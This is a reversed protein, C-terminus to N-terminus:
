QTAIYDYEATAILLDALASVLRTKAQIYSFQADLLDLNTAAGLIEREKVIKMNEDAFALESRAAKVRQAASRKNLQASYARTLFSRRYEDRQLRSAQVKRQSGMIGFAGGLSQFIPIELSLTATWSEDGDLELTDNSEWNYNFVFNLSPLVNSISGLRESKSLGVTDDMEKISPHASYQSFDPFETLTKLPKGMGPEADLNTPPFDWTQTLEAGIVMNMSLRALRMTNSAEILDGEVQAVQSEWRLVEAKSVQGVEYRAKTLKLTEKALELAERSTDELSFARQAQYYAQKVENVTAATMDQTHHVQRRKEMTAAHIGAIEAGGNFIPQVVQVYSSYTDKWGSPELESTDMGFSNYLKKTEDYADEIEELTDPDIRTASSKFYVKPLYASVSEAQGWKAASENYKQANLSRNNEMALSVAKELTLVEANASSVAAFVLITAIILAYRSASSM